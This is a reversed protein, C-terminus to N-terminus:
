CSRRAAGAASASSSPLWNSWGIGTGPWVAPKSSTWSLAGVCSDIFRRRGRTSCQFSIASHTRMAVRVSRWRAVHSTCSHSCRDRSPRSCCASRSWSCESSTRAACRVPLLRSLLASKGIGADGSIILAEGGARLGDVLGDLRRVEKDRGILAPAQFESATGRARPM